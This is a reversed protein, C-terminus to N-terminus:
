KSNKITIPNEATYGYSEDTAPQVEKFFKQKSAVCGLLLFALLIASIKVKM